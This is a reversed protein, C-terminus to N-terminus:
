LLRQWLPLTAMSLITSYGVMAAALEPALGAISLLAGTTMMTPMASELVVAARVEGRLGFLSCLALALAPLLVLKAVVGFGLPALFARPLKLKMQMGVALGVIPLLAGSLIELPKSVSPPPDAPMLTMGFLLALFPPFMVIRKVVSLLTPRTGGSAMAVVF